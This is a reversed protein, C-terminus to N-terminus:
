NIITNINNRTRININLHIRINNKTRTSTGMSIRVLTIGLKYGDQVLGIGIRYNADVWKIALMYGAQVQGINKMYRDLKYVDQVWGIGIRYRAWVWGIIIM